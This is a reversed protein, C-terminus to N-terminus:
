LLLETIFQLTSLKKYVLEGNDAGPQVVTRDILLGFIGVRVKEARFRVPLGSM